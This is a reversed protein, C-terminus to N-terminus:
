EHPPRKARIAILSGPWVTCTCLQVLDLSTPLHGPMPAGLGDGHQHLNKQSSATFVQCQLFPTLLEKLSVDDAPAMTRAADSGTSQIPGLGRVSEGFEISGSCTQGIVCAFQEM